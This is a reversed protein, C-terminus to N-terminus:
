LIQVSLVLFPRKSWLRYPLRPWPNAERKIHISYSYNNLVMCTHYLAYRNLIREQLRSSFSCFVSGHAGVHIQTLILSEQRNTM